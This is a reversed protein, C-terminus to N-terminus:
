GVVARVDSLRFVPLNTAVFQAGTNKNIMRLREIAPWVVPAVGVEKQEGRAFV